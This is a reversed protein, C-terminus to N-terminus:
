RGRSKRWERWVVPLTGSAVAVAADILGIPGGSILRRLAPTAVVLGGLALTGALSADLIWNHPRSTAGIRQPDRASWAYLLQAVNLSSFTITQASSGPGHRAVGYMFAVFAAAAILLGDKGIARFDRRQLLAQERRIPGRQMVDREAPELGLAIAPAVDTALNTWLLAMPSLPDPLGAAISAAMLMVESLNTSLLYQVSKRVNRHATRGDAIATLLARPHDAALVLDSMQQAFDAGSKGMAIGVDAARLAPGDNVGDGLMAVVHGRRQLARVVALKMAPTARALGCSDDLAAGLTDPDVDGGLRGDVIGREAPLGIAAAIALATGPQDGTIMLPRIGAAQYRAITERM